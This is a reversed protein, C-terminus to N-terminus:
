NTTGHGSNVARLLADEFDTDRNREYSAGMSRAMAKGLKDGLGIDEPYPSGGHSANLAEHTAELTHTDRATAQTLAATLTDDDPVEEDPWAYGVPRQDIPIRQWGLPLPRGFKDHTPIKKSM